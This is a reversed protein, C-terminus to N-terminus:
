ISLLLRVLSSWPLSLGVLLPYPSSSTWPISRVRRMPTFSSSSIVVHSNSYALPSFIVSCRKESMPACGTYKGWATVDQCMGEPESVWPMKSVYGADPYMSDLRIMLFLGELNILIPKNFIYKVFWKAHWSKFNHTTHGNFSCLLQMCYSLNNTHSYWFM